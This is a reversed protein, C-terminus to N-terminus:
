IFNVHAPPHKLEWLYENVADMRCNVRCKSVDLEKEIWGAIKRRTPGEWIQMFTEEYINGYRFREDGLYVSCGWINGGADMYSWFPHALCRHYGRGADDWKQMAGTRFIVNFDEGGESSLEEALHMYQSYKVAEYQRTVSSPHQSYPKVVLYDAGAERVTRALTVAEHFNEPLLLMQVGITCGYGGKRKIEAAAAINGIVRNFDERHTGHVRAYTDPTGANLSIKIWEIDALTKEATEQTFFVGNTTVAVDISSRKTHNIIRVMDRHLFPEGEGGYMVSKLGLAGMETLREMLVGTDLFRRRYGMFDLACFTCRHNCTGSPSIEMYVPYVDGHELWRNVRTVHYMLKHGGIRYKDM